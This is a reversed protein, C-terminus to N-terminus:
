RRGGGAGLLGLPRFRMTLILAFGFISYKWNNPSSLVSDSQLAGSQALFQTLKVLFISNFGVMVVAGLLVGRTSGIGGVIVMCLAIISLQFDYNSPEGTSSLSSAWLAGALAAFAAAIAFALLKNPVPSVGMVTAALEDERLSLWKRGVRSRELRTTFV